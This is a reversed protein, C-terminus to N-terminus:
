FEELRCFGHWSTVFDGLNVSCGGGGGGGGGFSMIVAGIPEPGFGVGM